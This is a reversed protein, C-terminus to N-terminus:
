VIEGPLQTPWSLFCFSLGIRSQPLVLLVIFRLPDLLVPCSYSKSGHNCEPKQRDYMNWSESVLPLIERERHGAVNWQSRLLKRDRKRKFNNETKKWFYQRKNYVQSVECLLSFYPSSWFCKSSSRVVGFTRVPWGRTLGQDSSKPTLLSILLDPQSYDSCSRKDKLGPKLPNEFIVIQSAM